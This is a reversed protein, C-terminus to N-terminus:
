PAGEVRWGEVGALTGRLDFSAGAFRSDLAVMRDKEFLFTYPQLEAVRREVARWATVLTQPEQAARAREILADLGEDALRVYNLSGDISKSHFMPTLDIRTAPAWASLYADFDGRRHREVFLGRELPLIEVQVGIRGLDSHIRVAARERLVSGQPVDLAFRLPRGDRELTGDGDRDRFGAGELLRRAQAPDHELPRLAPDHVWFTSLIPGSAVRGAGGLLQEVMAQRDIALSMARRVGAEGFPPRELNWGVYAYYLDPVTECRLRPEALARAFDEPSLDDLLDITGALLQATRATEDPIVRLELRPLRPLGEFMYRENAELLISQLPEWRAVRFPGSYVLHKMWDARDWRALPLGSLRHAPLINGEVADMLAYPSRHKFRFRVRREDLAEVSLLDRKSARGSWALAPDSQVKWTFLVDQSTVPMGDSWRARPDLHFVIERGGDEIEWGEALAPTFRPPRLTFDAEERALRLFLLDGVWLGLTSTTLYPNPSEPSAPVGMVLTHPDHGVGAGRACASLVGLVLLLALGWGGTASRM